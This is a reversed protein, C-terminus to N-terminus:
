VRSPDTLTELCAFHADQELSHGQTIPISTPLPELRAPCQKQTWSLLLNLARPVKQAGAHTGPQIWAWFRM